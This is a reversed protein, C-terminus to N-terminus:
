GASTPIDTTDFNDKVIVPVCHLPGTLGSQAFKADLADATVLANPNVLIISNLAPGKRDYAEIRELYMQVLQRCTLEKAKLAALIDAITAEQTWVLGFSSAKAPMTALLLPFPILARAILRVFQKHMEEGM